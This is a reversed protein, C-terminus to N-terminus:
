AGRGHCQPGIAPVTPNRKEGQRVEPFRRDRFAEMTRLSGGIM